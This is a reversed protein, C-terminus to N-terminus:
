FSRGPQVIRSSCEGRSLNEKSENKTSFRLNARGRRKADIAGSTCLHERERTALEIAEARNQPLEKAWSSIWLQLPIKVFLGHSTASASAADARLAVAVGVVVVLGVVCSGRGVLVGLGVLVGFAATVLVGVRVAVGVLVGVGVGEGDSTGVRAGVFAGVAVGDGVADAVAVATFVGVRELASTFPVATAFLLFSRASCSRLVFSRLSLFVRSISSSIERAVSTQVSRVVM